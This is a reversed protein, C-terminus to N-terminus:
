LLGGRKDCETRLVSQALREPRQAKANPLAASCMERMTRVLGIRDNDDAKNWFDGNVAVVRELQAIRKDRLRMWIWVPVVGIALSYDNTDELVALGMFVLFLYPVLRVLRQLCRRYVDRIKRLSNM